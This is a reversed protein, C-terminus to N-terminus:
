RGCTRGTDSDGNLDSRPVLRTIFLTEHGPLLECPMSVCTRATYSRRWVKVYHICPFQSYHPSATYVAPPKLRGLTIRDGPWVFEILLEGLANQMEMGCMSRLMDLRSLCVAPTLSRIKEGHFLPSGCLGPEHAIARDVVTAAGAADLVIERTLSLPEGHYCAFRVRCYSHTDEIVLKEIVGACAKDGWKVHSYADCPFKNQAAPQVHFINHYPLERQLYGNTGLLATDGRAFLLIAGADAHDHMLHPGISLLLYSRRAPAGGTLAVQCPVLKQAPLRKKDAAALVYGHPLRSNIGAFNRRRTPTLKPDTWTAAMALWAIAQIFQAYLVRGNYINLELANEVANVAKCLSRRQLYGFMDWAAQKWAGNGTERAAKEFLAIWATAHENWGSDGYPAVIGGPAVVRENRELMNRISPTAFFERTVGRLDAWACLFAESFGEYNSAQEQFERRRWWVDWVRDTLREYQFPAAVEPFLQRAYDAYVCACLAHNSVNEWTDVNGSPVFKELQGQAGATWGRVFGARKEASLYDAVVEYAYGCFLATFHYGTEFDLLYTRALRLYEKKSTWRYLVAFLLALGQKIQFRGCWEGPRTPQSLLRQFRPRHLRKLVREIESM